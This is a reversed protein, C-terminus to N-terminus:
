QGLELQNRILEFYASKQRTLTEHNGQEIIKGKDLVIIQDANKVTSLRHAVIVVTRSKYFEELNKMIVAENNADLASTAEDFLLFTPNKYVARAILIRQKQGGSINMGSAGIRTKYGNPLSEIFEEINAIKVAQHLREKDIMGESDSETINRAITDSFIFGEQMVVGANRRWFDSSFNSLNNSGIRIAGKTPDHFKLILKLLTTKGSGSAGVIATVKGEPVTLNIDDLVLASANAGYRFDVHHFTIDKVAPLVDIMSDAEKTEDEKDHIEALRELSIRADQYNQIFGIFGNIPTNLQGIIFQISLMTGLSFDGNMVQKAAFFTILINMLQLIFGGGIDQVQSLSLSKMSLKFLRVQILEWEWRRRKESNNLKIEQMGNLLQIISSQNGAAQDFRKYDLDKRKKLFAIIWLTNLITCVFLVLFITTSYYLLVSGFIVVSFSSFLINLSSSSLFNQIRTNDQIRQMLDGINKSDFYAIPLRMLKILFTSLMSINVRSTIHLLLWSRLANTFTQSLFLVLQGILVLNVFHLNNQSIGVDVIAQTLFPFILQIISAIFLGIFLQAILKNHPTIFPLLFRFNVKTAKSEETKYFEPTPELVLVIGESHAHKGNAQPIWGQLFEERKYKILGYAPDAVHVHRNDIEYVIVFHRQRWYAICPLPIEEALMPYTAQLMLTQIHISEAAESLGSLNVGDRTIFTKERLYERDIVKGYYSTIMKLCTPGCDKSDLQKFFPFKKAM